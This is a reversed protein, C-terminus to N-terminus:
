SISICRSIRTSQFNKVEDPIEKNRGTVDILQPQQAAEKFKNSQSADEPQAVKTQERIVPEEDITPDNKMTITTTQVKQTTVVTTTMTTTTTTPTPIITTQEIPMSSTQYAIPVTPLGLYSYLILVLPQLSLAIIGGAIAVLLLTLTSTGTQVNPPM